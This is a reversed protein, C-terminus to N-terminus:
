SRFLARNFLTKAEILADIRYCHVIRAERLVDESFVECDVVPRIPIVKTM